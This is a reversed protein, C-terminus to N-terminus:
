KQTSSTKIGLSYQKVKTQVEESEVKSRAMEYVRDVLKEKDAELNASKKEFLGYLALAAQRLGELNAFEYTLEDVGLIEMMQSRTIIGREQNELERLIEEESQDFSSVYDYSTYIRRKNFFDFYNDSPEEYEPLLVQRNREKQVSSTDSETLQEIDAETWKYRTELFVIEGESLSSRDNLYYRKISNLYRPSRSAREQIYKVEIDAVRSALLLYSMEDM